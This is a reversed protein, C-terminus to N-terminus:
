QEPHMGAAASAQQLAGHTDDDKARSMGPVKGIMSVALMVFFVPLAIGFAPILGPWTVWSCVTLVFIFALCLSCLPRAVVMQVTMRVIWRWSESFNSRLAWSLSCFLGYLVMGLLLVGASAYGLKGADHFNVVWYDFIFLAWLVAQPWGFRNAGALDDKWARHFVTWTQRISWSHDEDLLWTRYTTYTASVSPFLGVVVVGMLTHVLFAVHTVAIMLVVRCFHEYGIAFQRLM